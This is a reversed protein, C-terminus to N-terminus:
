GELVKHGAARMQGSGWFANHHANITPLEVHEEFYSFFPKGGAFEELDLKVPARGAQNLQRNDGHHARRAKKAQDLVLVMQRALEEYRLAAERYSRANARAAEEVRDLEAEQENARAQEQLRRLEEIAAEGRDIALREVGIQAEVAAVEDDSGELLLAKRQPVLQELRHRAEAVKTSAENIAEAFDVATKRGQRLKKFISM